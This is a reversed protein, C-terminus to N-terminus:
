LAHATRIDPISSYPVFSTPIIPTSARSAGKQLLRGAMLAKRNTILRKEAVRHSNRPPLKRQALQFSARGQSLCPPYFKVGLPDGFVGEGSGFYGRLTSKRSRGSKLHERRCFFLRPLAFSLPALTWKQLGRSKDQSRGCFEPLPLTEPHSRHSFRLFRVKGFVRRDRFKVRQHRELHRRQRGSLSLDQLFLREICRNASAEAYSGPMKYLLLFDTRQPRTTGCSRHFRYFKGAPLEAPPLAAGCRYREVGPM